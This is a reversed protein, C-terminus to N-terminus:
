PRKKRRDFISRLKFSFGKSESLDLVAQHVGAYIRLDTLSEIMAIDSQSEGANKMQIAMQSIKSYKLNDPINQLSLFWDWLDEDDSLVQVLSTLKEMSQDESM